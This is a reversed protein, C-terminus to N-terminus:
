DGCNGYSCYHLIILLLISDLPKRQLKVWKRRALPYINARQWIKWSNRKIKLSNTWCLLLNELSRSHVQQLAQKCGRCAPALARKVSCFVDVRKRSCALGFNCRLGMLSGSNTKPKAQYFTCVTRIPPPLLQGFQWWWLLNFQRM